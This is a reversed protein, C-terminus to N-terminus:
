KKDNLMKILDDTNGQRSWLPLFTSLGTGYAIYPYRDIGVPQGSDAANGIM